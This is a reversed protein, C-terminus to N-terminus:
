RRNKRWDWPPVPMPDAWLGRQGNQAEIETQSYSARDIADQESAYKKYHWALGRRVQELNADLGGVLVKGVIRGYRDLKQWDVAVTRGFVLDSLSQKAHQGFPQAKEPADIGMLRIKHEVSQGDLVTITDGDTVGVVRGDLTDALSTASVGLFLACALM